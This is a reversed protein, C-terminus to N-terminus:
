AHPKITHTAEPDTSQYDEDLQIPEVKMQNLVM